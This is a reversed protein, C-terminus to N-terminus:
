TGPSETASNSNPTQASSKGVEAPEVNMLKGAVKWIADAVGGVEQNRLSDVDASEFVREETGPVYTLQILAHAQLLGFDMKGVKAKGDAGKEVEIKAAQQILGRQAISPRRVEFTEGEWEVLIPASRQGGLAKSRLKDRVSQM